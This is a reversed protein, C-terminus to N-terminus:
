SRRWRPGPEELADFRRMLVDFLRDRPPEERTSGDDDALVDATVQRAFAELIANKTPYHAQVTALPVGGRGRHRAHSRAPGGRAAALELATAM